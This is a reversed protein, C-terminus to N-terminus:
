SYKYAYEVIVNPRDINVGASDLFVQMTEGAALDVNLTIDQVGRAGGTAKSAINAALYNKRVRATWATAGASELTIAVITCAQTVRFGTKNSVFAGNTRLYEDKNNDHDRGSFVAQYRAVSLFKNRSNSKDYVALQGNILSVPYQNASGLQTTPAAAKNTLYMNPDTAAAGQFEWVGTVIENRELLAITQETGITGAKWRKANEDWLLDANVAAVPRFVSLSANADTVAGNRLMINADTVQLESVTTDTISGTFVINGDVYLDTLVHVDIKALSGTAMAGLVLENGSVDALLFHQLDLGYGINRGRTISIDNVDDSRFELPQGLKDVNLIGDTDNHYVQDLDNGTQLWTDLNNFVTWVDHGLLIEWTSDDVGILGAGSSGLVFSNLESETYYRSDHHHLATATSCDSGNVLRQNDVTNVIEYINAFAAYVDEGDFDAAAVSTWTGDLNVQATLNGAQVEAILDFSNQLDEVAFQDSILFNSASGAVTYGLDALVVDALGPNSIRLYAM